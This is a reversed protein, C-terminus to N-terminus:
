LFTEQCFRRALLTDVYGVAIGIDHIIADHM